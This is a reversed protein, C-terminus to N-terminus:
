NLELQVITKNRFKSCDVVCYNEYEEVATSAGNVLVESATGSFAFRGGERLVYTITNESIIEAEICAPSIYKDINGLVAIDNEFPAIIYLAADYPELAFSHVQERDSIVATKKQWDYVIFKDGEIYKVDSVRFCDKINKECDNTNFVGIVGCKGSLNWAKASVEETQPNRFLRDETPQAFGNCKLLRGDSLCFPMIVEADSLGHPDSLYVPGGCIAHLVTNMKATGSGSSWMMDWDTASFYSHYYSNYINDNVFKNMTKVVKPLFDASNRNVMGIPRNWLSEQGMGTCNICAGDFYLGMSGELGYHAGKAALGVARSGHTCTEINCEVDVKIFDFGCRNLYDHRRNWFGFSGMEDVKPLVMNNPLTMTVDQMERAIRSEPDIGRWGGSYCEWIGVYKMDYDNKLRNVFTKLGEPFKEPVEKFDMIERQENEPYWGDDLLVWKVPINKDSFEKAKQYVGEATVDRGMSDWSCWGLYDFIPSLRTNKSMANRLSLVEFGSKVANEATKFPDKGWSVVVSKCKVTSYGSCYPSATICLCNNINKIESKFAGDCLPLMHYYTSDTKWVLSAVRSEIRNLSDAHFVEAWCDSKVGTRYCSGFVKDSDKTPALKLIVTDYAALHCRVDFALRTKIDAYLEIYAYDKGHKVSVRSEVEFQANSNIFVYNNDNSREQCLQMPIYDGYMDKLLLEFKFEANKALGIVQRM